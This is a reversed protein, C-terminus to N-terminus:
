EMWRHGVYKDLGAERFYKLTGEHIESAPYGYKAMRAPTLGKGSPHFDGFRSANEVMIKTFEYIVDNPMEKDCGWGIPGGAVRWPVTQQPGIGGPPIVYEATRRGQERCFKDYIGENYSVFFIKSTSLLESFAPNPIHKGTAPDRLFGAVLLGEILGDKLARVGDTFSYESVKFDKAGSARLVLKPLDVRASSPTLGVGIRKGSFDSPKKINPNLTAFGNFVSGYATLGRLGKYPTEYKDFPPDGVKVQDLDLFGILKKRLEPKEIILRATVANRPMEVATAKLWGNKENIFQAMAVGFAYTSTGVMFCHIEIEHPARSQAGASQSFILGFIFTLFFLLIFLKKIEKKM